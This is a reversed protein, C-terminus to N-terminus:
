HEPLETVSQGDCNSVWVHAGDDAIAWPQSFENHVVEVLAGSTSLEAVADTGVALPTGNVILACTYCDAVFVDTGDSVVASPEVVGSTRGLTRLVAGSSASIESLTSASENSVWVDVGDSSVGMGGEIGGNLGSSVDIVRVLAGDSADLEAVDGPNAVWVHTGDADIAVPFPLFASTPITAVIAGSSADLETVAPASPSLDVVWVHTGDSSVAIPQDFGYSPGGLVQVLAGTSADLETISNDAADAVWVHSGDDSIGVPRDFEYAPGELVQVLAGTAADLETVSNGLRNAVWVHTADVAIGAPAAFDYSSGKNVEELAGTSVDLEAVSNTQGNSIWATGAVVCLALPEDVDLPVGHILKVFAGNSAAFETVSDSGANVVLLDTGAVAIAAPQNFGYGARLVRVFGANTASLETVSGAAVAVWVLAGRTAISIPDELHYKAGLFVRVLSGSTTLETIWDVTQLTNVNLGQSAVFVRTGAIALVPDFAGSASTDDFELHYRAASLTRVVKGDSADVESVAAVGKVLWAVWVDDGNASVAIATTVPTTSHPDREITRVIAGSTASVETIADNDDAVWVFNGDVAIADPEFDGNITRVFSGTTANLETLYGISSAVFLDTGNSAVADPDAFGWGFVNTGALARGALRSSGAPARTVAGVATSSLCAAILMMSGVLVM